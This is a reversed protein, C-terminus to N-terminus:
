VSIKGGAKKSLFPYKVILWYTRVTKIGWFDTRISSRISFSIM